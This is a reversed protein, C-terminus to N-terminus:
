PADPVWRMFPKDPKRDGAELWTLRWETARSLKNSFAGKATAEIFGKAELERFATAITLLKSIGVAKAADRQGLAIEGNNHGNHRRILELLLCRAVRDLSRFAPSDFMYNPVMVFPQGGKSKGNHRVGRRSM